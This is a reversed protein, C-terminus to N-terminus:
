VRRCGGSCILRLSSHTNSVEYQDGNKNRIQKESNCTKKVSFDPLHRITNYKIRVTTPNTRYIKETLVIAFFLHKASALHPYPRAAEDFQLLSSFALSMGAVSLREAREATHASAQRLLRNLVRSVVLDFYVRRFLFECIQYRCDFCGGIVDM